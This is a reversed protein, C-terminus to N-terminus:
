NKHSSQNDKLRAIPLTPSVINGQKQREDNLLRQSRAKHLFISEYVDLKQQQPVNKLLKLNSIEFDHPCRRQGGHLKNNMHNAVFSLEHHNYTTLSKHEKYRTKISRRLQGIYKYGFKQTGCKIEYIGSKEIPDKKDITSMLKNERSTTVMKLNNRTFVKNLKKTIAPFFSISIRKKTPQRTEILTTLEQRRRINEHKGIIKLIDKRQYGNIQGITDKEKL